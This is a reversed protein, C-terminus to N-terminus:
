LIEIMNFKVSNQRNYSHGGFLHLNKLNPWAKHLKEFANQYHQWNEILSNNWLQHIQLNVEAHSMNQDNEADFEELVWNHQNGSVILCVTFIFTLKNMARFHVLHFIWDIFLLILSCSFDSGTLYVCELLLKKYNLFCFM